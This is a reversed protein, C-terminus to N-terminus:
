RKRLAQEVLQAVEANLLQRAPSVEVLPQDGDEKSKALPSTPRPAKPPFQAVSAFLPLRPDFGRDEAQSASM